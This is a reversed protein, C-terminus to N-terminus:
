NPLMITVKFHGDVPEFSVQGDNGKVLEEIIKVGYGHYTSNTKDSQFFRKKSASQVYTNESYIILNNEYNYIKIVITKNEQETKYVAEIANDLINSLILILDDSKVKSEIMPAVQISMTIGKSECERMKINLVSNIFQDKCYIIPKQSYSDLSLENLFKSLNDYQKQQNFYNITELIKKIDHMTKASSEIFENQLDMQNNLSKYKLDTVTWYQEKEFYGCLRVYLRLILFSTIFFITSLIFYLTMQQPNYTVTPYMIVLFASILLFCLFIIDLTIISYGRSHTNIKRFYKISFYYLVFNIIKIIIAFVITINDYSAITNYIDTKQLISILDAFIFESAIIIYFAYAVTGAIVTIRDSFNLICLVFFVTVSVPIKVIIPATNIMYITFVHAACSCLMVIYKKFRRELVRSAFYFLIIGEVACIILDLLTQKNM